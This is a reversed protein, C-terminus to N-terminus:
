DSVADELKSRTADDVGKRRLAAARRKLRAQRAQLIEQQKQQAEQPSPEDSLVRHLPVLEPYNAAKLDPAVQEDVEPVRTCAGTIALAVVLVTLSFPRGM